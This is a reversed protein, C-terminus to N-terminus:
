AKYGYVGGTETLVWTPTVFICNSTAITKTGTYGTLKRNEFTNMVMQLPPQGKESQEVCYRFYHISKMDPVWLGSASPVIVSMTLYGRVYGAKYKAEANEFMNKQLLTMMNEQNVLCKGIPAVFSEWSSETQSLTM